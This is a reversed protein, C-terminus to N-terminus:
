YKQIRRLLLLRDLVGLHLLSQVVGEVANELTLTSFNPGLLGASLAGCMETAESSNKLAHCCWPNPHTPANPPSEAVKSHFHSGSSGSLEKKPEPPRHQLLSSGILPFTQGSTVEATFYEPAAINCYFELVYM